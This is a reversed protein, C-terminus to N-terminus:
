SGYRITISDLSPSQTQDSEVLLRYQFYDKGQIVKPLVHGKNAGSLIFYSGRTGDPGYWEENTLNNTDGTRVQLKLEGSLKQENWIISHYYNDVGMFRVESLYEAYKAVTSPLAEGQVVSLEKNNLDSLLYVYSSGVSNRALDIDMVKIGTGFNYQCMLGTNISYVQYQNSTSQGATAFTDDDLGVIGLPSMGSGTNYAASISRNNNIIDIAFIDPLNGEGDGSYYIKKYNAQDDDLSISKGTLTDTSGALGFESTSLLTSCAQEGCETATMTIYKHNAPLTLGTLVLPDSTKDWVPNTVIGTLSHFHNDGEGFGSTDSEESSYFDLRHYNSSESQLAYYITLTTGIYEAKTVIPFNQLNNPGTDMDGLDNYTVKPGSSVLNIGMDSNGYISNEIIANDVSENQSVYIGYNLNSHITNNRILTKKANILYIGHKSNTSIVNGDAENAGGIIIDNSDTNFLQIGFNNPISVASETYGVNNSKIDVDTIDAGYFYIATNLAGGIDNNSVTTNDLTSGANAQIWLAYSSDAIKATGARNIGLYNNDITLGTISNSNTLSSLAYIIRSSASNLNYSINLTTVKELEIGHTNRIAVAGTKDSGIFNGKITSNSSTSAGSEFDIGNKNNSIVNCTGSCTAPIQSAASDGIITGSSSTITVGNFTNGRALTGSKDTGIYNGQLVIDDSTHITIGNINSSIINGEGDASGGVTNSDSSSEFGIGAQSNNQPTSGDQGLGIINCTVEGGTSNSYNIGKAFGYIVLGRVTGSTTNVFSLGNSNMNGGNLVIRLDKTSCNSDTQTSGDIELVNTINPLATAPSIIHPGSGPISFVIKDAAASYNAEAIAARLTCSGSATACNTDGINADVEDGTSDVVYRRTDPDGFITFDDIVGMAQESGTNTVNGIYLTPAGTFENFVTGAPTASPRINDLFIKLDDPSSKTRDWEIRVKMWILQRWYPSYSANPIQISRTTGGYIYSLWLPNTGSQKYMKLQNTDNVRVNFLTITQAATSALDPKYYFEIAGKDKKFSVPPTTYPISGVTVHESAADIRVGNGNVATEYTVNQSTAGKGIVPTTLANADNMTSYWIPEADTLSVPTPTPTPSIGAGIGFIKVDDIVGRARQGCNTLTGIYYASFHVMTNVDLTGIDTHTPEVDNIYFKLNDAADLAPDWMVNIKMWQGVTWHSAYNAPLIRVTRTVGSVYTAELNNNTEHTVSITKGSAGHRLIFLTGSFGSTHTVSPNYYFEIEGKPLYYDTDAPDTNSCPGANTYNAGTRGAITTYAMSVTTLGSGVVPTNLAANDDMTSYWLLNMSPPSTPTLSVEPITPFPLDVFYDYVRFEDIAGIVPAGYTDISTLQNGIYMLTISNIPTVVQNGDPHSKELEVGNMFLRLESEPDPESVDYFIEFDIWQNPEWSYDSPDVYLRNFNNSGATKNEYILELQNTKNKSFRFLNNNQNRFNFFIQSKSNQHYQMPKYKLTVRGSTKDFDSAVPVVKVYEGYNDFRTANGVVGDVYSVSGVEDAGTGIVPTLFSNLDNMTSYWIPTPTNTPTISPTVTVTPTLTVSPVPTITPTPVLTTIYIKFEDISGLAVETGNETRNGVYVVPAVPQSTISDGLIPDIQDTHPPQDGDIFIKLQESISLLSDDDWTVRFYIWDGVNWYSDYDALAIIEEGGCDIQCNYALALQNSGANNKKYLRIEEDDDYRINFLTIEANHNAEYLPRYYFEVAGENLSYELGNQAEVYLSKGTSDFYLANGHEAPGDIFSAGSFVGPSEGYDPNYITNTSDFDSHWSPEGSNQYYVPTPGPTGVPTAEPQDIDLYIFFEDILGNAENTGTASSNGIFIYTPELISIHNIPASNRTQPVLDNDVIIILQENIPAYANWKVTFQMWENANFGYDSGDVLVEVDNCEACKYLLSLSDNADNLKKFEIKNNADGYISFFTMEKDTTHAELPSYVFDITGKDLSIDQGLLPSAIRIVENDANFRASKIEYFGGDGDDISQTLFDAGNLVSGASGVIPSTVDLESNMNSYWGIAGYGYARTEENTGEFFLNQTYIFSFLLVASFITAMISVIATPYHKRRLLSLNRKEQKINADPVRKNFLYNIVLLLSLYIEYFLIQPFRFLKTLLNQRSYKASAVDNKNSIGIIKDVIRLNKRNEPEKVDFIESVKKKFQKAFTKDAKNLVSFNSPVRINQKKETLVIIQVKQNHFKKNTLLFYLLDNGSYKPLTTDIVVLEPHTIYVFGLGEIGNQSTYLNFTLENLKAINELLQKLSERIAFNNDIIVINKEM